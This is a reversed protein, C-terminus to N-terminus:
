VVEGKMIDILVDKTNRPFSGKLMWNVYDGEDVVKKGKNKGFSFVPKGDGDRVIKGALDVWEKGDKCYSDMEEITEPLDYRGLQALFVEQTARIDAEAGHAGELVKGCFRRYAAELTRPENITFIKYADVVKVDPSPFPIGCRLFEEVLMPLDFRLINYGGLDCGEMFTALGKAIKEFTPEEAVDEDSIGHVETAEPAIPITPNIRRTKVEQTGDPHYKLTSIEVIRDEVVDVGTTELDYFIIPRTLKM